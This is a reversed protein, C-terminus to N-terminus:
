KATNAAMEFLSDYTELRTNDLKGTELLLSLDSLLYDNLTQAFQLRIDVLQTRAELVAVQDGLSLSQQREAAELLAESSKESEILANLRDKFSLLRNYALQIQQTKDSVLYDLDIQSAQYEAVAKKINAQTRGGSYIPVNLEVSAVLDQRTRQDDESVRDLYSLNFTVTPLHLAKRAAVNHEQKEISSQAEKVSLNNYINGLWDNEKGSIFNPNLSHGNKVWEQPINADNGTMNQLLTKADKLESQSRLLDSKALDRSSTVRLVNLQNGIGLEQTRLEQTLKLELSELKEQNLYVKQSALLVSLYREAVRYILEQEARRYRYESEKILAKDRQYGEYSSYDFLPQRLSLKWYYDDLEGGSRELDPDYSSSNVDTYINDSDEYQYAANLRIDPLLNAFSIEDEQQQAQYQYYAKKLMPDNQLADLLTEEFGNAITSASAGISISSLLLATTIKNLQGIPQKLWKRMNKQASFLSTM